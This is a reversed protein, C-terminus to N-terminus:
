SESIAVSRGELWEAFEELSLENNGIAVAKNVVEMDLIVDEIQLSYGNLELFVYCAFMGTRKTGDHFIHRTIIHWGLAAAKFFLTPYREQGFVTEDLTELIYLLSNPNALNEDASLFLGGFNEIILRNIELIEEFTLTQCTGEV